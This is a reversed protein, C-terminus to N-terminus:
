VCGRTCHSLRVVEDVIGRRGGIAEGKATCFSWQHVIWCSHNSDGGRIALRSFSSFQGIGIAFDNSITRETYDKLSSDYRTSISIQDFSSSSTLILSCSITRWPVTLLIHGDLLDQLVLSELHTSSLLSSLYLGYPSSTARSSVEPSPRRIREPVSVKSGEGRAGSLISLQLDHSDDLMWIYDIESGEEVRISVLHTAPLYWSWISLRSLLRECRM